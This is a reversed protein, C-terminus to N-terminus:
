EQVSLSLSSPKTLCMATYLKKESFNETAFLEEKCHKHKGPTPLPPQLHHVSITGATWQSSCKPSAMTGQIWTQMQSQILSLIHLLLVSCSLQQHINTGFISIHQKSPDADPLNMQNSRHNAQPWHAKLWTTLDSSQAPCTTKRLLTLGLLYSCNPTQTQDSTLEEGYHLRNHSFCRGLKKYFAMCDVLSALGFAGHTSGSVQALLESGWNIVTKLIGAYMQCSLYEWAKALYLDPFCEAAYACWLKVQSLERPDLTSHQTIGRSHLFSQKNQLPECTLLLQLSCRLLKSFRPFPFVIFKKLGGTKRSVGLEGTHHCKSKHKCPLCRPQAGLM